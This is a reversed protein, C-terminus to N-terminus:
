LAKGGSKRGELAERLEVAVKDQPKIQYLSLLLEFATEFYRESKRFDAYVRGQLLHPFATEVTGELLVPMVSEKQAETGIMRKGIQDGEAAVVFGGMSEKNEYKQRYLPTGVVIVRDSKAVREVFRPVSAGVRKNEWRDLVVSIGAKQLDTALNREVWQEHDAKGWAYSIFCEPAPIKQETAYTKL